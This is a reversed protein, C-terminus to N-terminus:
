RPRELTTLLEITEIGTAGLEALLSVIAQSDADADAKLTVKAPPQASLAAIASARVMEVGNLAVRGDASILLHSEVAAALTESTSAAPAIPFPDGAALRGALMFFILLLFVINILPLIREEDNKRVARGFKM